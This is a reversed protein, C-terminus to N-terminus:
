LFNHKLYIKTNNLLPNCIYNAAFNELQNLALDGQIFYGDGCHVEIDIDEYCVKIADLTSQARNDRVGPKYSIELFQDYNYDISQKNFIAQEILTDCLIEDAMYQLDCTEIIKKSQLWYVKSSFMKLNSKNFFLNLEKELKHRIPTKPIVDFRYTNM